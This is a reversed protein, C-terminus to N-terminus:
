GGGDEVRRPLAEGHGVVVRGVLEGTPEVADRAIAPEFVGLGVGEDFGSVVGPELAAEVALGAELRALVGRKRGVLEVIRGLILEDGGFDEALGGVFPDLEALEAVRADLDREAAAGVAGEGLGGSIEGRQAQIRPPKRGVVEVSGGVVAGAAGEGDAAHDVAAAADAEGAPDAADGDEVTREGGGFHAREM